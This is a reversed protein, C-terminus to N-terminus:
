TLTSHSVTILALECQTIFDRVQSDFFEPLLALDYTEILRYGRAHYDVKDFKVTGENTARGRGRSPKATTPPSWQLAKIGNMKFTSENTHLDNYTFQSIDVM